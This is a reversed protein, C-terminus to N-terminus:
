RRGVADAALLATWNVPGRAFREHLKQLSWPNGRKFHAYIAEYDSGTKYGVQSITVRVEKVGREQLEIVTFLDSLLEPHPFGPPASIAQIVILRMPLYALFRNRINGPDGLKADLKYSSEWIGGLRFDVDAVPVAWSKVGDATTFAQWVDGLAAPVVLAHQMVRSGDPATFSTEEVAPARTRDQKEEAVVGGALAVIVFLCALRM